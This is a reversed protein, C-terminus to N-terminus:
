VYGDTMRGMPGLRRITDPLVGSAITERLAAMRALSLVVGFSRASRRGLQDARVTLRAARREQRAALGRNSFSRAM